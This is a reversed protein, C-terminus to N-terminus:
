SFGLERIGENWPLVGVKGGQRPVLDRCRCFAEFEPYEDCLTALYRLQKDSVKGVSKIEVLPTSADPRGIELDVDFGGKTALYLFPYDKRHNQNL